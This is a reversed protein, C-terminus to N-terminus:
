ATEHSETYRQATSCALVILGPVDGLQQALHLPESSNFWSLEPIAQGLVILAIGAAALAHAKPWKIGPILLLSLLLGGATFEAAISSDLLAKTSLSFSHAIGLVLLALWFVGAAVAWEPRCIETVIWFALAVLLANHALEFSFFYLRYWETSTHSLLPLCSLAALAVFGFYVRLVMSRNARIALYLGTAAIAIHVFLPAATM